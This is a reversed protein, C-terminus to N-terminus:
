KRVTSPDACDKGWGIRRTKTTSTYNHRAQKSLKTDRPPMTQNGGRRHDRGRAKSRAAERGRVEELVLKDKSAKAVQEKVKSYFPLVYGCDIPM